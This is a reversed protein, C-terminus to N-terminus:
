RARAQLVVDATYFRMLHSTHEPTLSSSIYARLATNVKNKHTSFSHTIGKDTLWAWLRGLRDIGFLTAGEYGALYLSQPATHKDHWVKKVLADFNLDYVADGFFTAMGSVWRDIPDRIIAFYEFDGQDDGKWHLDKRLIERMTSCGCKPIQIYCLRGNNILRKQIM